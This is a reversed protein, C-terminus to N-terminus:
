KKSKAKKITDKPIDVLIALTALEDAMEQAAKNIEGQFEAMSANVSNQTKIWQTHLRVIIGWGTTLVRRANESWSKLQDGKAMERMSQQMKKYEKWPKIITGAVLQLRDIPNDSVNNMYIALKENIYETEVWFRNHNPVTIRTCLLIAIDADESDRLNDHFKKVDKISHLASEHHKVDIMIKMDEWIVHRDMSGTEGSTNLVDAGLFATRLWTDVIQEGVEGKHVSKNMLAEHNAKQDLRSQMADRVQELQDNRVRMYENQEKLSVREREVGTLILRHEENWEQKMKQIRDEIGSASLNTVATRQWTQIENEKQLLQRDVELKYRELEDRKVEFDKKWKLEIQEHLKTEGLQHQDHVLECGWRLANAIDEKSATTYWEPVSVNEVWNPINTASPHISTLLERKRDEPCTIGIKTELEELSKLPNEIDVNKSHVGKEETRVRFSVQKVAFWTAM